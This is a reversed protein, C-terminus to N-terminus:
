QVGNLSQQVPVPVEITKLQPGSSMTELKASVLDEAVLKAFEDEPAPVESRFLYWKGSPEKRQFIRRGDTKHRFCSKAPYVGTQTHWDAKLCLFGSDTVIWRGRAWTAKDGSDAWAEFVRGDAHMRGAGDAWKWSRDRYLLYLELGTMARAEKPPFSEAQVSAAPALFALGAVAAAHLFLSLRPIKPKM